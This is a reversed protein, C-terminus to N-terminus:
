EWRFEDFLDFCDDRGQSVVGEVRLYWRAKLSKDGSL